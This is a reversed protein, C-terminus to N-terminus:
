IYIYIYIYLYINIYVYMYIYVYIYIYICLYIYIYINIGVVIYLGDLSYSLIYIYLYTNVCIYICIYMYIGVVIYLGDLSYSLARSANEINTRRICCKQETSWIKLIGDDGVTAYEGGLPNIDLGWLERCGHGELLLIHSHTPLSVEYVESGRTGVL